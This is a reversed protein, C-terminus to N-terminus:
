PLQQYLLETVALGLVADGVFELQENDTGPTNKTEHTAIDDPDTRAEYPHSRHTLALKLLAPKAFKYGLNQELASRSESDTGGCVFARAAGRQTASQRRSKTRETGMAQQELRRPQAHPFNSWRLHAFGGGFRKWYRVQPADPKYAEKQAKGTPDFNADDDRRPGARERKPLAFPKKLGSEAAQRTDPRGDRVELAAQYEAVAHQRDPTEMTDYLRGLYIHSWALTRPDKTLTLTKEFGDKADQAHGQMLDVRALLYQAEGHDAKPDQM